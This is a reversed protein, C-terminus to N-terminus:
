DEDFDMFMVTLLDIDEQEQVRAAELKRAQEAQQLKRRVEARFARRSEIASKLEKRIGPQKAVTERYLREQREFDEVPAAREVVAAAVNVADDAQAQRKKALKTRIEDAVKGEEEDEAAKRIDDYASDYGYKRWFPGGGYTQQAAVPADATVTITPTGAVDASSVLLASAPVTVTITEDATVDYDAALPLTVTVQTDSDRVVASVAMKDRVEANWGAAEGGASTIGDIIDQRVANFAAGSAVWTDGAITIIITKGGDRVETETLGGSATGSITATLPIVGVAGNWFQFAILQHTNM